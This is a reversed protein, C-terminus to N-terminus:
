MPEASRNMVPLSRFIRLSFIHKCRSEFGTWSLFTLAKSREAVSTLYWTSCKFDLLIRIHLYLHIHSLVQISDNHNLVWHLLRYVIIISASIQMSILISLKTQFKTWICIYGYDIWLYQWSVSKKWKYGMIRYSKLGSIVMLGEHGLPRLRQSVTTSQRPTPEFGAPSMYKWKSIKAGEGNRVPWRLRQLHFWAHGNM